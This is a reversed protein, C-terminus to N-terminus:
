LPENWSAQYPVDYRYPQVLFQPFYKHAATQRHQNIPIETNMVRMIM